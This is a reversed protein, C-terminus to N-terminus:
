QVMPEGPSTDDDDATTCTTTVDRVAAKVFFKLLNASDTARVADLLGDVEALAPAVRAFISSFGVSQDTLLDALDGGPQLLSISSRYALRMATDTVHDEQTNLRSLLACKAYARTLGYDSSRPLGETTAIRDTALTAHGDDSEKDSDARLWEHGLATAREDEAAADPPEGEPALQGAKADTDDDGGDEDQDTYSDISGVSAVVDNDDSAADGGQGMVTDGHSDKASAREDNSEDPPAPPPTGNTPEPPPASRGDVEMDEDNKGDADGALDSRLEGSAGASAADTHDNARVTIPSPPAAAGPTGLADPMVADGSGDTQAEGANLPPTAAPNSEGQGLEDPSAAQNGGHVTIPPPRAPPAGPHVPQPPLPVLALAGAHGPERPTGGGSAGGDTGAAAQPAPPPGRPEPPEVPGPIATRTISAFMTRGTVTRRMAVVMYGPRLDVFRTLWAVSSTDSAHQQPNHDPDDASMPAYEEVKGPSPARTIDYPVVGNPYVTVAVVTQRADPDITLLALPGGISHALFLVDALTGASAHAPADSIAPAATAAEAAQPPARQPAGAGSSAQHAQTAALKIRMLARRETGSLKRHAAAAAAAPPAGGAATATAAEAAAAGEGPPPPPDFPGARRKALIVFTERQARMRAIVDTAVRRAHITQQAELAATHKDHVGHEDDIDRAMAAETLDEALSFDRAVEPSAFLRWVERLITLHSSMDVACGLASHLLVSAAADLNLVKALRGRIGMGDEEHPSLGEAELMLKLVIKSSMISEPALNRVTQLHAVVVARVAAHEDLGFDATAPPQVVTAQSASPVPTRTLADALQRFDSSSSGTAAGRFVGGRTPKWGWTREVIATFLGISEPPVFSKNWGPRPPKHLSSNHVARRVAQARAATVPVAAGVVTMVSADAEASLTTRWNHVASGGVVAAFFAFAADTWQEEDESTDIYMSTLKLDWEAAIAAQAQNLSVNDLQTCVRVLGDDPFAKKLHAYVAESATGLVSQRTDARWIYLSVERPAPAPKAGGAGRVLSPSRLLHVANLLDNTLARVAEDRAAVDYRTTIPLNAISRISEVPVVLALEQVAMPHTDRATLYAGVLRNLTGDSVSVATVRFDPAQRQIFTGWDGPADSGALVVLHPKDQRTSAARLRSIAEAQSAEV